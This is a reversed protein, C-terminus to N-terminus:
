FNTIFQGLELFILKIFRDTNNAIILQSYESVDQYDSSVALPEINLLLHATVIPDKVSYECGLWINLKKM